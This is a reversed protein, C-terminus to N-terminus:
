AELPVLVQVTTGEGPKSTVTLQCHHQDAIRKAISLGLGTGGTTKTRSPDVRFFRDFIKPLDQEAIGIGNDQITIRGTTDSLKESRIEIIGAPATFKLSNDVFIRLMQKFLEQDGPITVSDNRTLVVQHEPAILSTERALDEILGTLKFPVRQIEQGGRDARALFLLKEILSQMHAAESRIADIGETLAAPDEKGWRDLMDAYGTVVTVPTRLEHSADSIFRRQVEFGKQIRELMSNFTVALSKIEDDSSPVPLRQELNSVEIERATDIIGRIPKLIKRSVSYGAIVAILLGILNVAILSVTLTHLFANTDLLNRSFLLYYTKDAQYTMQKELFRDTAAIGHIQPGEKRDFFSKHGDKEHFSWPDHSDMSQEDILHREEPAYPASDYLLKKRDDYIQLAVGNALLGKEFLEPGVRPHEALYSTVKQMSSDVDLNVQRMLTYRMGSITLGSLMLLICFLLAAYFLTIKVSIPFHRARFRNRIKSWM